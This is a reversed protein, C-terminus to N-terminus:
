QPPALTRIETTTNVYQNPRISGPEAWDKGGIRVPKWIFDTPDFAKPSKSLSKSAGVLIPVLHVCRTTTGRNM